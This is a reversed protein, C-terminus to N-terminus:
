GRKIRIGNQKAFKRLKQHDLRLRVALTQLIEETTEVSQNATANKIPDLLIGDRTEENATSVLANAVIRLAQGLTQANHADPDAMQVLYDWDGIVDSARITEEPNSV